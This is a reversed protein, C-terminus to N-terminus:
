IRAIKTLFEPHDPDLGKQLAIELVLYQLPVIAIFPNFEMPGKPIDIKFDVDPIDEGKAAIALVSSGQKKVKEIIRYIIKEREDNIGDKMNPILVIILTERDALTLPGHSFEPAAYGQAVIRAGEKLKLAGELATAVDPGSGLVFSKQLFKLYKATTRAGEQITERMVEIRDPILHLEKMKIDYERQSIKESALGLELAICAVIALQSSYTKTALVSYEKGARSYIVDDPFMSAMTSESENVIPVIYVGKNQAIQCAEITDSSEGSQSIAILVVSENLIDQLYYPFESPHVCYCPIKAFIHLFFMAANGAHFSTGSGTIIIIKPNKDFIKQAANKIADEQDLAHRIADPEQLIESLTEFGPQNTEENSMLM